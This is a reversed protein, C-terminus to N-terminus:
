VLDVLELDLLRILASSSFAFCAWSEVSFNSNLRGCSFGLFQWFMGADMWVCESIMGCLLLLLLDIAM